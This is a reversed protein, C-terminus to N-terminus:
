PKFGDNVLFPITTKFDTFPFRANKEETAGSVESSSSFSFTIDKDINDTCDHLLLLLLKIERELHWYKKGKCHLYYIELIKALCTGISSKWM